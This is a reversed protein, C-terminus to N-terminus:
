GTAACDFSLGADLRLKREDFRGPARFSRERPLAYHVTGQQLLVEASVNVVLQVLNGSCAEFGVKPLALATGLFHAGETHDLTHDCPDLKVVLGRRLREV